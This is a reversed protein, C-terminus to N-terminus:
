KQAMISVLETVFKEEAKINECEGVNIIYCNPNSGQKIYPASENKQMIIVTRGESIPTKSVASSCDAFTVNYENAVKEDSIAGIVSFGSATLFKSLEMNAFSNYGKCEETNPDNSLTINNYFGFVVDEVSVNNTRPDNRCNLSYFNQSDLPVDTHYLTIGGYDQKSWTTGAYNFSKMAPVVWFYILLFGVFVVIIIGFFWQLQKNYNIPSLSTNSKTEAEEVKVKKRQGKPSIGGPTKTKAM